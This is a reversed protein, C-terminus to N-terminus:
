YASQEREINRRGRRLRDALDLEGARRNLGSVFAGRGGYKEAQARAAADAQQAAKDQADAASLRETRVKDLENANKQM